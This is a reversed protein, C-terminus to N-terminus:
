FWFKYAIGMWGHPEALHFRPSSIQTYFELQHRYLEFTLSGELNGLWRVMQDSAVIYPSSRNIVGGQLTADYFVYSATASLSFVVNMGPGGKPGLRNFYGNRADFRFWLGAELDTHLTGLRGKGKIGFLAKEHPIFGKELQLDYNFILDNRVQYDWGQPPRSPNSLLHALEQTKFGLSAPGMVGVRLGSIIRLQKNPLVFVRKQALTLTSSYPHDGASITDMALDKPTFIEQRLQLGSWTIGAKPNRIPILIRNIPSQRLKNQFFDIQFGNTYYYDRQYYLDNEWAVSIYQGLDELGGPPSIEVGHGPIGSSSFILLVLLYFHRM